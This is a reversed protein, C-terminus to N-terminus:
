NVKVASWAAEVATAQPSGAGFLDIAASKTGTRAGAYNTGSTFYVTLARYWIREAASRGIGTVTLGTNCVHTLSSGSGEALLYFFHNAVGSSYHVDLGGVSASYCGASAGDLEPNYMARLAGTGSRYLEEGILYDGPDNPNNAYFEVMTGFIDSTAENLGGSEGSYTLGATRSTVGHSMEHGAVDLSDFPNFTTGDGDGYTMCFCSDSWFANNYRRGYHVRNYAGVGDNAIGRRAHVNLYYDWTVATGYQADVGVTAIDALTSDGWTNDADTFIVGGNQRNRMNITYQGGRSPDRLEYGATVSNTTLAVTGSFFGKGTGAAAAEEIGEWRELVDGLLADVIVHLESPTGDSKEGLVVVEYALAHEAGRAYVVLEAKAAGSPKAKQESQAIAIAEHELLDPEVDLSILRELTKSVGDVSGDVRGHVVVDGGIVRLGKYRRDLRVHERGDLDVVVDRAEFEHDIDALALGPQIRLSSLARGAPGDSSEPGPPPGGEQCGIACTGLFLAISFGGVLTSHRMM